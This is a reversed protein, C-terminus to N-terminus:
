YVCNVSVCSNHTHSPFLIPTDGNALWESLKEHMYFIYKPRWWLLSQMSRAWQPWLKIGEWRNRFLAKRKQHQALFGCYSHQIIGQLGENEDAEPTHLPYVLWKYPQTEVDLQPVLVRQCLGAQQDCDGSARHQQRLQLWDERRQWSACCGIGAKSKPLVLRPATVESRWRWWVTWVLRKGDVRVDGRDPRWLAEMGGEVGAEKWDWGRGGCASGGQLSVTLLKGWWTYSLLFPTDRAESPQLFPRGATPVPRPHEQVSSRM